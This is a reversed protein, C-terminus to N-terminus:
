PNYPQSFNACANRRKDWVNGQGTEQCMKTLDSNKILEGIGPPPYSKKTHYDVTYDIFLFSILFFIVVGCIIRLNYNELLRKLLETKM